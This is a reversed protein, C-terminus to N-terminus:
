SSQSRSLRLEGNTRGRHARRRQPKIGYVRTLIQNRALISHTISYNLGRHTRRASQTETTTTDDAM